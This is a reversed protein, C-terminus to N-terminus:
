RGANVYPTFEGFTCSGVTFHNVTDIVQAIDGRCLGASGFQRTLLAYPGGPSLGNCPGQMHALYLRASGVRFAVTNEDVVIMDNANYSPLCNVPAQAVKGALLKQYNQEARASRTPASPATTCSAILGGLVLLIIGRM